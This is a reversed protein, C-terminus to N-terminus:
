DGNSNHFYIRPSSAANLRLKVELTVVSVTANSFRPDINCAITSDM